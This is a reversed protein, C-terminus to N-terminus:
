SIFWPAVIIHFLLNNFWPAGNIHCLIPHFDPDETSIVPSQIFHSHESLILCWEIWILTSRHYLVYNWWFWPAAIIHFMIRDFDPHQSSKFRCIILDHHETLIVYSQIFILTSRQYSLPNSSILTSRHYSADNSWFWPAGIIHFMIRDFDHHEM